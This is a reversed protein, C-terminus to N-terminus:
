GSCIVEFKFRSFRALRFANLNNHLKRRLWPLRQKLSHRSLSYVMTQDQRLGLSEYVRGEWDSFALDFAAGDSFIEVAMGVQGGWVNDQPRDVNLM